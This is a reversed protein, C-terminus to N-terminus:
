DKLLMLLLLSTGDGGGCVMSIFGLPKQVSARCPGVASSGQAWCLGGSPCGRVVKYQAVLLQETRPPQIWGTGGHQPTVHQQTSVGSGLSFELRPPETTEGSLLRCRPDAWHMVM